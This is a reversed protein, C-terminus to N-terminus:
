PNPTDAAAPETAETLGRSLPEAGEPAEVVVKKGYDFFDIILTGPITITEEEPPVAALAFRKVVNTKKDIWVEASVHHRAMAARVLQNQAKEEAGVRLVGYLDTLADTFAGEKTALLFHWSPSGDIIESATQSQYYLGDGETISTWLRSWRQTDVEGEEGHLVATSGGDVYFWRGSLKILNAPAEMSAAFNVYTTGTEPARVEVGFLHKGTVEDGVLLQMMGSPKAGKLNFGGEGVVHLPLALEPGPITAGEAQVKARFVTDMSTRVSFSSAERLNKLGERVIIEPRQVSVALAVAVCGAAFIVFLILLSSKKM